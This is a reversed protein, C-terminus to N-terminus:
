KSRPVCIANYMTFYVEGPKLPATPKMQNMFAERAKACVAMSPFIQKDVVAGRNTTIVLVASAATLLLM